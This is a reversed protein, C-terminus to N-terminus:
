NGSIGNRTATIPLKPFRQSERLTRRPGFPMSRTELWAPETKTQVRNLDYQRITM